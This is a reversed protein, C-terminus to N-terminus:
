TALWERAAAETAFSRAQVEHLVLEKLSVDALTLIEPGEVVFAWKARGRRAAWASVVPNFHKLMSFPPFAATDTAIILANMQPTFQPDQSLTGFFTAVDAITLGPELRVVLLENPKEVTYTLM